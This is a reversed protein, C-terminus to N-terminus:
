GQALNEDLYDRLTELKKASLNNIPGWPPVKGEMLGITM